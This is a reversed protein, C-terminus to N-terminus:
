VHSAKHPELLGMASAKLEVLRSLHEQLQIQQTSIRSLRVTVERQQEIPPLLLSLKRQALIGIYDRTSQSAARSLQQQFSLSQFQFYLFDRDLSESDLVRYYTVQPTLMIYDTDLEPVVAVEGVTGKHTLLIDGPYSFGIRLKDAIKRPIFKCENL